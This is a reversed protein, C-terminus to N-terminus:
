VLKTVRSSEWFCTEIAPMMWNDQEIFHIRKGFPQRIKDITKDKILGVSAVPLPHGWRTLRIDVVNKKSFGLLPILELMQNKFERHFRGYSGPDLIESRFHDFPIGRYLTLVTHKKDVHAFNACVMDTALQKRSTKEVDKLDVKGKGLLYMDYFNSEVSKNLIVNGVLYPRYKLSEIAEVRWPEINKLVRKVIFKPISMIVKDAAIVKLEGTKQNMYAVEVHDEKEEVQIVMSGTRFHDDSLTKGLHKLLTEAIMSNGGPAVMVGAPEGGLFNLGAAASLETMSANFSSFCYHEVLTEFLPHLKDVKLYDLIYQHLSISDLREIHERNKEDLIPLDPFRQGNREYYIDELHHHFLNIQEQAAKDELDTHINRILKRNLEYFDGGSKLKLYQDAGIEKMFLDIESGEPPRAFYAAGLSYPLEGFYEGKSNGGFRVNQELIVPARDRLFYASMLGSMGGGVVVLKHHESVPPLPNKELHGEIDWLVSHMAEPNDGSFLKGMQPRPNRDLPSIAAFREDTVMQHPSKEFVKSLTSCGSLFFVTSAGALKLLDRRSFENHEM